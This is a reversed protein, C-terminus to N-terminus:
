KIHYLLMLYYHFTDRGRLSLFVSIQSFHQFIAKKKSKTALKQKRTHINKTIHM